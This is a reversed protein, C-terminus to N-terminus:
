SACKDPGSCCSSPHWSHSGPRQFNGHRWVPNKWKHFRCADSTVPVVSFHHASCIPLADPLSLIHCYTYIETPPPDNFFFFVFRPTNVSNFFFFLLLFASVILVLLSIVFLM